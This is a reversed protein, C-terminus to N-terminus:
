VFAEYYNPVLPKGQVDRRPTEGFRGTTERWSGDVACGGQPWGIVTAQSSGSVQPMLGLCVLPTAGLVRGVPGSPGWTTIHALQLAVPLPLSQRPPRPQSQEPPHAQRWM